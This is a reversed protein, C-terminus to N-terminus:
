IIFDTATVGTVGELFAIDKPYVADAPNFDIQVITSAGLSVLKLYGDGIPDSGTYGVENALINSIDIKDQGKAFDTITDVGESTENFFYIDNGAGGTLTDEGKGAIILDNGTGGTLADPSNTGKLLDFISITTTATNSNVTGDNVVVDVKRATTSPSTSTNNFSIARIATQYNALSASGSLTIVGTAPDYASATIGTPLTGAAALVDSTQRNTLTITASAINTNDPDTIKVDRDAISVASGTKAFATQYNNGTAGSSDNGDLDIIPPTNIKITTTATNSNNNGDNVVVSVNRATTIPNGSTNNFTIARIATQYNALTAGGKLTIVGTAPDYASATIGAPLSGAVLLDSAQRNTLTITASDINTDDTDTIKVDIDAIPVASGNKNFTTQYNAGTAGSSDNDDLDLVPPSNNLLSVSITSIATNSNANGDNVVVNITRDGTIRGAVGATNNYTIQSIATQYNALSASGTLTIVGTNSDYTSATIGTPLTGLVALVESAGNPRNTLTITASTLNTDDTDTIITDADAITVASGNFSFKNQYNNGTAGSSDNGDLDIVPPTNINITATATNSNASGDNVVVNVSRPTTSPNNSTNNFTITRIATQYNALSASGTLTIVGTTANYGTTTIGTPLTGAALLDSAQRNTLTITASAINTNDPDTILTDIDGIAVASGNKNFTTRYNAGTAGSSDNADLDIVPPDNVPIVNITATATNSNATGDNVVVDVKRPTTNPNNSTNNFSIARIATQYNALSASGTLTIVGTTANYTSATIGAPLTGAALLDSAQANTLTIKASAINTNDPDTISVDTDGISVASGKETFTTLYNAGTAGSSDNGDLDLVPPDNVPIVNITATATNSNATGDNVVVDVKRPTTNPNNSTNNFSIARIATQYNALSASGTLTIVGTTANYTSATIGAPLTGAALLDSAQANTLTIKASAINTNDPDTISVDTDGISVASGKETFTTLYNAGTAGSSDNGDLDLVPPDNVPIVNVTTTAPISDIKGNNITVNITRPTTSPNGSTNNFTIARIATQYNAPTASGTLTIVGIAPDYASATIGTPLSGAALVDSAQRNTLTIKASAINSENSDTITTDIDGIPVANGKETFTTQYNAGTAGSSDNGDLDLVPTSVPDIYNDVISGRGDLSFLRALAGGTTTGTDLVGARYKFGTVSGYEATAINTTASPDIGAVNASTKAEFRSVQTSTNYTFNLNNGTEVTYASINSLDVYERLTTTDGAGDVDVPSLVFNSVTTPTSTGTNVFTFAFDVSADATNTPANVTPQFAEPSGTPSSTPATYTDLSALTAGNNLATVTVLADVGTLVNSFRYVSGAALNAIGNNVQVPNQFNLTPPLNITLRSSNYTGNNSAPVTDAIKLTWTGQASKGNFASFPNTPAAIRDASYIPAAIDDTNTDNIANASGGQLLLDYNTNADSGNAIATVTTNDPSTLTFLLDGRRAHTVNLGLTLNNVTVNDTITFTRVLPSTATTANNIIGSTKNDVLIYALVGTYSDQTQQSFVSEATIKATQYELIWDGSLAANGTRTTSAAIEAGTLDHLKEIFEEGADGAAVNCGYILLSPSQPVPPRPSQPVPPRPSQSVPLSPSLSFWTKLDEQYQSLTDLNLQTNGLYLCGPSGHSVLHISTFNNRQSLVETIQEIGNRDSELVVVEIGPMVGNALLQYDEVRDIFVIQQASTFTNKVKPAIGEAISDCIATNNIM